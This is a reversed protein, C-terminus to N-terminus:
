RRWPVEVGEPRVLVRSPLHEEEAAGRADAKEDTRIKSAEVRCFFWSVNLSCFEFRPNEILMVNIIAQLYGYRRLFFIFTRKKKNPTCYKPSTSQHFDNGEIKERKVCCNRHHEGVYVYETCQPLQKVPVTCTSCSQLQFNLYQVPLTNDWPDNNRNENQWNENVVNWGAAVLCQLLIYLTVCVLYYGQSSYHEKIKSSMYTTRKLRSVNM